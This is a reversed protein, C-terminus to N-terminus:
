LTTLPKPLRGMTNKILQRIEPTTYADLDKPGSSPLPIPTCDVGLIRLKEAHLIAQDTADKDYLLGIPRQGQLLRVSWFQNRVNEPLDEPPKPNNGIGFGALAFGGTKWVKKIGEVVIWTDWLQAQTWNYLIYSKKLGPSILYKQILTEEHEDEKTKPWHKPLWRAQWGYSKDGEKIDFIIRNTTTNLPNDTLQIGQECLYIGHTEAEMLLKKESFGESLLYKWAPNKRPVAELPITIGPKFKTTELGRQRASLVPNTKRSEPTSTYQTWETEKTPPTQLHLLYGLSGSTGCRHCKFWETEFHVHCHHKKDPGKPSNKCYPCRTIVYQSGQSEYFRTEGQNLLTDREPYTIKWHTLFTQLTM